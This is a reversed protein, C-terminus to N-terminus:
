VVGLNLLTARASKFFVLLQTQLIVNRGCILRFLSVVVFIHVPITFHVIGSPVGEGLWFAYKYSKKEVMFIDSVLFISEAFQRRPVLFMLIM